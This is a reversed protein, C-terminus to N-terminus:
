EINQIQERIKEIETKLTIGKDSIEMDTTKSLITNSERNMEQALFDLKRGVSEPANMAERMAKVHSKLRVVEEDVCIKDAFITVETLLRSEDVKVEGLIEKVRANIKERYQSIILPSKEEIFMAINEVTDLKGLLDKKLNAGESERASVFNAFAGRLTKELYVWIEEEDEEQEGMVFVEPYRSLTSVRIDDDLGFDDKMERLYKLYTAAVERNYRISVNEESLDEYSIFIDVKGREAYEKFINRIRAEFGYFKKPCKINLDLYRHNVAKVEVTIHKNNEETECRGFGTMSKVM